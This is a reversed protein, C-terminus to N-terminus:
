RRDEPYYPPESSFGFYTAQDRREVQGGTTSHPDAEPADDETEPGETTVELLAHGFLAVFLRM